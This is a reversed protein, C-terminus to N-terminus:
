DFTQPHSVQTAVWHLQPQWFEAGAGVAQWHPSTQLQPWVHLQLLQRCEFLRM